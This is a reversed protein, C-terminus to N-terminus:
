KFKLLKNNENLTEVVYKDFSDPYKGLGTTLIVQYKNGKANIEELLAMCKKLNDDDIGLNEPTDILLFKPFPVNDKEVSMKLLTVYYLFRRAVYSSAQRYVGNNVSPMYDEDIEASQVNKDAKKLLNTFYQSFIDKQNQIMEKVKFELKKIQKNLSILTGNSENFKGEIEQYQKVISQKQEIEKLHEKTDLIKDDLERFESDNSLTKINRELEMLQTRYKQKQLEEKEIDTDIESLEDKCSIIAIEITEVSKQKSRLIDLYENSDYFFKEYQEEDIPNGCICSNEERNVKKLCCPCTDPSFINLEEHALVIKRIQTAELIINEKLMSLDKLELTVKRKNYKLNAITEDSNIFEQRLQQVYTDFQNTNELQTKLSERSLYLKELQVALSKRKQGYDDTTLENLRYGMRDVIDAFADLTAKQTNRDREQKNYEGILAYYESFQYGVLLEFIVKRVASSDSIFNNDVRHEKYIKKANSDQDYHMLRFLDSFNIKFKRAGQYIDCVEIKLKYLLWDSFTMDDEKLLAKRNVLLSKEYGDNLGKVFIVNNNKPNFYRTLEYRYDNIMIRLLVYNNTDNFIENHNEDKNKFDFQKVYMGLGFSIFASFTTKGTGNSAEIIQLGDALNPSHYQYKDGKYIIQRIALRGM